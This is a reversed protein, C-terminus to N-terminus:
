GGPPRKHIENSHSRWQITHSEDAPKWIKALPHVKFGVKRAMRQNKRQKKKIKM